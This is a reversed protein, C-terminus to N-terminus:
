VWSTNNEELSDAIPLVSGRNVLKMDLRVRIADTGKLRRHILDDLLEITLFGMLEAPAKLTTLPPDLLAAMDEDGSGIISIDEPVRIGQERCTRLAGAALTDSFCLVATPYEGDTLLDEMARAGHEAKYGGASVFFAEDLPRRRAFLADRCARYGPERKITNGGGIYAINEHGADALLTAAHFFGTYNDVVAYHGPFDAPPSFEGAHIVPLGETKGAPWSTEEAPSPVIILGSVGASALTHVIEQQQTRSYGASRIVLRYGLQAARQELISSFQVNFPITMDNLVLGLERSEAPRDKWRTKELVFIGQGQTIRVLGDQELRELARSITKHSTDFHDSMERIGMLKTGPPHCGEFIDKKLRDYIKLYLIEKV